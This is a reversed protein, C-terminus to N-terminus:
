LYRWSILNVFEFGGRGCYVGFRGHVLQSQRLSQEKQTQKSRWFYACGFNDVDVCCFVFGYSIWLVNFNFVGHVYVHVCYRNDAVTTNNQSLRWRRVTAQRKQRRKVYATVGAKNHAFQLLFIYNLWSIPSIKNCLYWLHVFFRYSNSTTQGKHRIKIFLKFFM